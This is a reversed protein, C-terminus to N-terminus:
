NSEEVENCEGEGRADAWPAYKEILWKGLSRAKTGSLRLRFNEAQGDVSRIRVVPKPTEAIPELVATVYYRCDKTVNFDIAAPKRAEQTLM